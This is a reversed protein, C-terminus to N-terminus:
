MSDSLSTKVACIGPAADHSVTDLIWSLVPTLGLFRVHEVHLRAILQGIVLSLLQHSASALKIKVHIM